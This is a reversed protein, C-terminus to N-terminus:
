KFSFPSSWLNEDFDDSSQFFSKEFPTERDVACYLPLIPKVSLASPDSFDGSGDGSSSFDETDFESFDLPESNKGSYRKSAVADLSEAWRNLKENETALKVIKGTEKEFNGSNQKMALKTEMSKKKTPSSITMSIRSKSSAKRPSVANERSWSIKSPDANGMRDSNQGEKAVTKTKTPKRISAAPNQSSSNKNRLDSNNNPDRRSFIDDPHSLNFDFDGFFNGTDTAANSAELRRVVKSKPSVFDTNRRPSKSVVPTSHKPSKLTEFLDKSRSTASTTSTAENEAIRLKQHVLHSTRCWDVVFPESQASESWEQTSVKLQKSKKEVGTKKSTIGTKGVSKRSAEKTKECIVNKCKSKLPKDAMGGKADLSSFADGLFPGPPEIKIKSSSKSIKGSTLEDAWPLIFTEAKLKERKSKSSVCDIGSQRRQLSKVWPPTVTSEEPFEGPGRQQLRRPSSYRPRHMADASTRGTIDSQHCIRNTGKLRIESNAGEGYVFKGRPEINM